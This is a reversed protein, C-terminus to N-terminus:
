AAISEAPTRAQQDMLARMHAGTVPIADMIQGWTPAPGHRRNILTIAVDEDAYAAWAEMRTQIDTAIWDAVHVSYMGSERRDDGWGSKLEIMHGKAYVAPVEIAEALVGSTSDRDLNSPNPIRITFQRVMRTAGYIRLVDLHEPPSLASLVRKVEDAIAIKREESWEARATEEWAQSCMARLLPSGKTKAYRMGPKIDNLRM